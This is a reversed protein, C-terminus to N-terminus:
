CDLDELSLRYCGSWGPWSCELDGNPLVVQVTATGWRTQFQSGIEISSPPIIETTRAPARAAAPKKRPIEAPRRAAGSSQIGEAWEQEEEDVLKSPLHDGVLVGRLSVSNASRMARHAEQLDLASLMAYRTWAMSKWRGMAMITASDVGADLASRVGGARWSAAKIKMAQGLEDFVAVKAARLLSSTKGIMYEKSLTTGDQLQFAPDGYKLRVCSRTRYEDLWRVPCMDSESSFCRVREDELWWRAKPQVVTVIVASQGAVTHSRVHRGLLVGRGGKKV